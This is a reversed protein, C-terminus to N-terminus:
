ALQAREERTTNGKKRILVLFLTM